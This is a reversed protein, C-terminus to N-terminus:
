PKPQPPAMAFAHIESQFNAERHSSDCFPKNRSLGCRCLKVLTRGAVDFKAGAQDFIEFDGEVHISGNNKIMIKTPM